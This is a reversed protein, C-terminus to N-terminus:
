RSDFKLNSFIAKFIKATNRADDIGRHHTGTPEIGLMQLANMMGVGRALEKSRRTEGHKVLMGKSLMAGHQHKISIHNNVMDTKMGWHLLDKRLQSKDYHGWSCLWFPSAELTAKHRDACWGWFDMAVQDFTPAADVEAQTISTLETCFPTLEPNVVPRVFSQFEEVIELRENLKVAGIEIIESQRNEGPWGCTAELDFVIYNM